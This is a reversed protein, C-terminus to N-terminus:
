FRGGAQSGNEHTIMKPKARKDQRDTGKYSVRSIEDLFVPYGNSQKLFRELTWRHKYYSGQDHFVAAYNNIAGIIEVSTDEKLAKLASQKLAKSIKICKALGSIKNWAEIIASIEDAKKEAKENIKKEEEDLREIASLRKKEAADANDAGKNEEKKEGHNVDNEGDGTDHAESDDIDVNGPKIHKNVINRKSAHEQSIMEGRAIGGKLSGLYKREMIDFKKARWEIFRPSYVYGLEDKDFLGIELCAKIFNSYMEETVGLSCAYADMDDPSLLGSDIETMIELTKFYLSYGIHEGVIRDLKIIKLDNRSCKEHEFYYISGTKEDSAKM